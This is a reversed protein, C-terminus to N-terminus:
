MEGGSPPEIQQQEMAKQMQYAMAANAIAQLTPIPLMYNASMANDGVKVEIRAPPLDQEALGSLINIIDESGDGTEAMPLGQFINAYYSIMDVSGQMLMGPQSVYNRSISNPLPGGAKVATILGKLGERSSALLLDGDHLAIYFEQKALDEFNEPLDTNEVEPLNFSQQYLHYTTGEVEGANRKYEASIMPDAAGQMNGISNMLQVAFFEYIEHIQEETYNGEVYQLQRPQFDKWDIASGFLGGTSAMYADLGSKFDAMIGAAEPPAYKLFAAYIHNVYDQNAKSNLDGIISISYGEPIYAGGSTRGATEQSFYDGMPTGRLAEMNGGLLINEAGLGLGINLSKAAELEDLSTELFAIIWPRFEPPLSADATIERRIEEMITGRQKVLSDPLLTLELDFTNPVEALQALEDPDVIFALDDESAAFVLYDGVEISATTPMQNLQTALIADPTAKMFMVAGPKEAGEPMLFFITIPTTDSFGEFAPYGYPGLFQPLMMASMGSSDLQGVLRIVKEGLVKPAVVKMHGLIPNNYAVREEVGGKEKKSCSTLLTFLAM